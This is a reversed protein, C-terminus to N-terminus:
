VPHSTPPPATSARVILTNELVIQRPVKSIGRMQEILTMAAIHGMEHIPQAITSLKPFTVSSELVGDYGLISLENPLHINLEHAAHMAGIALMDTTAFIATIRNGAGLMASAAEQGIEFSAADFPHSYILEVDNALDRAAQRIGRMRESGVDNSGGRQAVGGAIIGIRRHGLEILHRM